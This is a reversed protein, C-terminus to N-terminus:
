DHSLRKFKPGLVLRHSDQRCRCRQLQSYRGLQWHGGALVMRVVRVHRLCVCMRRRSCKESACMGFLHFYNVGTDPAQLYGCMSCAFEGAPAPREEGCFWCPRDRSSAAAATHQHTNRAATTAARTCPRLPFLLDRAYRHPTPCALSGARRAHALAECGTAQWQPAGTALCLEQNCLYSRRAHMGVILDHTSQCVIHRLCAAICTLISRHAFTRALKHWLLAIQGNLETVQQVQACGRASACRM